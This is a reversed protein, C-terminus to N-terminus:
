IWKDFLGQDQAGVIIREGDFGLAGKKLWELSAEKHIYSKELEEVFRGARRHQRWREVRLHEERKSYKSRIKRAIETAIFLLFTKGM